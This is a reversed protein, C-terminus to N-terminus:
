QFATPCISSLKAGSPLALKTPPYSLRLTSDIYAAKIPYYSSGPDDMLLLGTIFHPSQGGCFFIRDDKKQAIATALQDAVPSKAQVSVAPDVTRKNQPDALSWCVLASGNQDCGTNGDATKGWPGATATAVSQTRGGPGPAPGLKVNKGSINSGPVEGPGTGDGKAGGGGGKDGFLNMLLALVLIGGCVYPNGGSSLCVQGAFALTMGIAAAASEQAQIKEFTSSLGNACKKADATTSQISSKLAELNTKLQKASEDSLGSPDIPLTDPKIADSEVLV